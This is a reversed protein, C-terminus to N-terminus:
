MTVVSVISDQGGGISGVVQVDHEMRGGNFVSKKTSQQIKIKQKTAM